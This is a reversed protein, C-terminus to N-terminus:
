VVDVLDYGNEITCIVYQGGIMGSEPTQHTDKRRTLTIATPNEYCVFYGPGQDNCLKKVSSKLNLGNKVLKFTGGGNEILGIGRGEFYVHLKDPTVIDSPHM